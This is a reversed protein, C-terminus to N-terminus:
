TTSLREAYLWAVTRTSGSINCTTGQHRGDRRDRELRHGAEAGERQNDVVYLVFM